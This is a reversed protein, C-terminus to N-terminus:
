EYYMMYMHILKPNKDRTVRYELPGSGLIKDDIFEGHELVRNEIM